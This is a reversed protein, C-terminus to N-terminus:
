APNRRLTLVAVDEDLKGGARNKAEAVLKEALSDSDAPLLKCVEAAVAEPSFNDRVADMLLDESKPNEPVTVRRGQGADYTKVRATQTANKKTKVM